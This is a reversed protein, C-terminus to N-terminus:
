NGNCSPKWKALSLTHVHKLPIMDAVMVYWMPLGSNNKEPWRGLYGDLGNCYFYRSLKSVPPQKSELPLLVPNRSCLSSFLLLSALLLLQKCHFYFFLFFFSKSHQKALFHYFQQNSKLLPRIMKWAYSCHKQMWSRRTEEILVWTEQTMTWKAACM